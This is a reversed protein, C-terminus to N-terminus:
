LLPRCIMGARLVGEPNPIELRVRITRSAADIVPSLFVIKADVEISDELVVPISDGLEWANIQGIPVHLVVQLVDLHAITLVEARAASINESRERYVRVIVGDFPARMKRAELQALIRQVREEAILSDSRSREIEVVSIGEQDFLNELQEARLAQIRKAEKAINLDRELVSIDLQALLTGEEVHDGEQVFVADLVGSEAFAAQAIRIPETYGFLEQAVVRLPFLFLFFVGVCVLLNNRM